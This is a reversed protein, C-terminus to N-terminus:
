LAGGLMDAVVESLYDIQETRASDQKESYTKQGQTISIISIEQAPATNTEETIVETKVITGDFITYDNHTYSTNDDATIIISSTKDEDKFLDIVEDSSVESLDFNFTLCDRTNGSVFDRKGTVSLCNLVTGDKLTIKM